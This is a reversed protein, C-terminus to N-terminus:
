SPQARIPNKRLFELFLAGLVLDGIAPTVAVLAIGGALAHGLFIAFVMPKGIVGLKILSRNSSPDQAVWYYGLGFLAVCAAFLHLSLLDAHPALGLASRAGPRPLVFVAAGAAMWNWVAGATFLTKGPAQRDV